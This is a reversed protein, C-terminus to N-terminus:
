TKWQIPMNDFSVAFQSCACPLFGTWWVVPENSAVESSVFIRRSLNSNKRFNFNRIKSPMVSEAVFSMDRRIAIVFWLVQNTSAAAQSAFSIKNAKRREFRKQTIQLLRHYTHHIILRLNIYNKTEETWKWCCWRKEDLETTKSQIICYNRIRYSFNIKFKSNFSNVTALLTKVKSTRKSFITKFNM